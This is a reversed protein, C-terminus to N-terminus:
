SENYLDEMIIACEESAPDYPVFRLSNFGGPELQNKETFIYTYQANKYSMEYIGNMTLQPFTGPDVCRVKM